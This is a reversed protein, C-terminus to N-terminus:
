EPEGCDKHKSAMHRQVNQFTRNCHICVGAEARKRLRTLHGKTTRLSNEARDREAALSAVRERNWALDGRATNLERKLRDTETEGFTLTHGNPCYFLQGDQRRRNELTTPIGFVIGCRACDSVFLTLEEEVTQYTVKM